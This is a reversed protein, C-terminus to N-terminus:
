IQIGFAIVLSHMRVNKYWVLFTSHLAASYRDTYNVAFHAFACVYWNMYSCTVAAVVTVTNNRYQIEAIAERVISKVFQPTWTCKSKRCMNVYISAVGGELRWGILNISWSQQCLNMFQIAFLASGSWIRTWCSLLIYRFIMHSQACICDPLRWRGGRNPNWVNLCKYLVISQM